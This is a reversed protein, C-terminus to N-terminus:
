GRTKIKKFDTIVKALARIVESDKAKSELIFNFIDEKLKQEKPNLVKLKEKSCFGKKM